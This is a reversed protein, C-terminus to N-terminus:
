RAFLFDVKVQVDNDVKGVGYNMGWKTRDLKFDAQMHVTEETVEATVPVKLENTKGLLTLKGIIEAKGEEGHVIKTSEFKIKPYKRIDFFDASKLHGELKPDDAWLSATDIEINVSSKEPAEFDADAKVTFKKFGGEHQGDAKKGVFSIKSKEANLKLPVGAMASASCWALAMAVVPFLSQVRM